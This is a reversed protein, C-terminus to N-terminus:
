YSGAALRKFMSYVKAVFFPISLRRPDWRAYGYRSNTSRSSRDPKETATDSGQVRSACRTDNIAVATQHLDRASLASSRECPDSLIGNEQSRQALHDATEARNPKQVLELSSTSALPPHTGLSRSLISAPSSYSGMSGSNTVARTRARSKHWASLAVRSLSSSPRRRM